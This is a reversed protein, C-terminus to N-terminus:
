TTIQLIGDALWRGRDGTRLPQEDALGEGAVLVDGIAGIPAARGDPDVVYIRTNAIPRGVVVPAPREIRGITACGATEATGYANWLTRCRALIEDALEESLAAGSSLANLSRAARLGSDVLARWDDPAAHLLTVGEARVLESIRAGNAADEEKAFVVRAGAALPAWLAVLPNRRVREPLSLVVDAPGLGLESAVSTVVNSAARQSIEVTKGSPTTLATFPETTTLSEELDPYDAARDGVLDAVTVAPRDTATANWEVSQRREEAPTAGALGSVTVGPDAAIAALIRTWRDALREATAAEFLDRDYILRGAISGDPLEDIQLELDLKTADVARGIETEIFRASWNPDPAVMAPELVIMSQYVPNAGGGSAPSIERVVREFPVANDLADLMENRVRSLLESFPPNGSLDVRVVLPTLCYGVVKEFEPRQRLDAPTAFVVDDQGSYRGLLVAWAAGLVGFLTTGAAQGVTHLRAVLEAPVSVGAVGGRYRQQAPRPRDTPLAVPTYDALHEQWYRLRRAARPGTIWEQEWRAYDAYGAEPEPLPSPQDAAFAAYLEILEPLVVRYVSVGDFIIHHLGLYLRHESPSMRVLRPRVLPGRRLDYPARSAEAAVRVAQREAEEASLESLDILPLDIPSPPAIVQAPEGDVLDFATRWAAHRRVIETFAERLAELDLPGTKRISVTENYSLRNPDLLSTYWLAEQAVSVPPASAAVATAPERPLSM